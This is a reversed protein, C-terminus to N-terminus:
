LDKFLSSDLILKLVLHRARNINMFFLYLHEELEDLQDSFGCQSKKMLRVVEGNAQYQDEKRELWFRINSKIHELEDNARTVIGSITEFDKSLIYTGKAAADLQAAVGALKRESAIDTMPAMIFGPAGVLLMFGHSLIVAILSSTITVLMFASGRRLRTILKLKTRVKDRKSELQKLLNSCQSRTAQIRSFSPGSSAFKALESILTSFHIPPSHLITNLSQYMVRMRDIDKLILSCLLSANATQAFYQSLLSHVKRPYPTMSLVKIVTPQDPDLLHEAFLRYSPLRAATTSEGNSYAVVRTWFDLYSETRFADAYEERVDAATQHKPSNLSHASCSPLKKMKEFLKKKM